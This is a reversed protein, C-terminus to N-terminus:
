DDDQEPENQEVDYAVACCILCFALGIIVM